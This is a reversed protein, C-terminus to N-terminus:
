ILIKSISFQLFTGLGVLNIIVFDFVRILYSNIIYSAAM